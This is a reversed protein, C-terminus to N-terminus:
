VSIMQLLQLQSGIQGHGLLLGQSNVARPQGGIVPGRGPHVEGDDEIPGEVNTTEVHPCAQHQLVISMLVLNAIAQLPKRKYHTETRSIVQADAKGLLEAINM